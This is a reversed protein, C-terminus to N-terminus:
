KVNLKLKEKKEGIEEKERACKRRKEYKKEGL